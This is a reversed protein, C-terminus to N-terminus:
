GHLTCCVRAPPDDTTSLSSEIVVTEAIRLSEERELADVRTDGSLPILTHPIPSGDLRGAANFLQTVHRLVARAEHEEATTSTASRRAFRRAEPAPLPAELRCFYALRSNQAPLGPVADRPM